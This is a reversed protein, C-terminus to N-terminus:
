GISCTGDTLFVRVSVVDALTLGDAQLIAEANDFAAATQTEIDGKV